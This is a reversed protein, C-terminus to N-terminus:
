SNMERPATTEKNEGTNLISFFDTQIKNELVRLKREMEECRRVKNVSKHHFAIVESVERFQVLGLEELESIFMFASDTHLFLQSLEVDESCLPSGMSLFSPYILQTTFLFIKFIALTINVM